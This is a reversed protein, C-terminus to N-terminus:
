GKVSGILKHLQEKDVEISMEKHAYESVNSRDIDKLFHDIDVINKDDVNFIYGTLKIFTIPM